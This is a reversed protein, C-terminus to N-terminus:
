NWLRCRRVPCVESLQTWSVPPRLKCSWDFFTEQQEQADWCMLLTIMCSCWCDHIKYCKSSENPPGKNPTHQSVDWKQQPPHRWSNQGQLEISARATHPRRAMTATACLEAIQSFDWLGWFDCCKVRLGMLLDGVCLSKVSCAVATIVTVSLM